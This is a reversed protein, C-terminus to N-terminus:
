KKCGWSNGSFPDVSGKIGEHMEEAVSIMCKILIEKASECNDDSVEICIEDHVLLRIPNSGFVEVFRAAAIKMADAASGQIPANLANREWQYSYKNLWIKRGYISQVFDKARKQQRMYEAIGPYAALISDIMEQAEDPTVGIRKSLGFASMGYFLGLITSKIHTYEDSQKTISIGLADRAIRIYLKEESNLADILGEDQSLYAAVRPEQSGWDAVIICNGEGAVFCDRYEFEHPQNQLNPNRSSTRGTEAGMQFVDGYIRGDEEVYDDIFSKGYTSARKACTRYVLLDNAFLVGADKEDGMSIKELEEANTSAINWGLSKFHAKVQAPSNLNVGHFEKKVSRKGQVEQWEGYKAQIEQATKENKEALALWKNVDLRIGKMGLLVWLFPLEIDKWINLDNDDIQARQEKYVRWTAAVDVASYGLQESSLTDSEAFESRVDKSLYVGLYRRVLDNLGFDSYYGSFRIQEILMTDYLLNRPPIKAWRRLQNIDFKLNHGIWVAKDIREFFEQVQDPDDIWYVTEGDYTCGLFALTGHPRHLRAKEMHFFESDFAVKDGKKAVPPLKNIIKLDKPNIQNM